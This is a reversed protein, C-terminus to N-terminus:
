KWAWESIGIHHFEADPADVRADFRVSFYHAGKYETTEKTQADIVRVGSAQKKASDYIFRQARRQLATDDVQGDKGCRSADFNLSSFYSQTICGRHCIGCYHCAARGKHV